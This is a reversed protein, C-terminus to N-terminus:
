SGALSPVPEVNALTGRSHDGFWLHAAAQARWPRWQEALEATNRPTMLEGTLNSLTRRMTLDDAPFADIEGMRMAVYDATGPEIGDIGNLSHVLDQLSMSRDLRVDGNDVASAFARLTVEAGETLGIGSLEARALTPASPFAHSLGLLALGPAPAGHREVLRRAITSAEAPTRQQGVIAYVGVEFPDWTGPVRRGPRAEVLSRLYPDTNLRNNATDLDVDLSFVRRAGQVIHLLDAWHPLHARLLLEGPGGRCVELVGVDGEVVITRRYIDREVSEVGWIAKARLYGLLEEWELAGTYSMRVVLGGDAVLHDSRRRRARLALPTDRFVELMTRNFQRLSGFGAAFAIETASLDTDDLLRRAFHARNSRALQDPTVGVHLEFLRRLHRSSTRLRTALHQENHHDLAGDNILQIGRCVVEPGALGVPGSYRYPRCRLCARYGAAEAAAALEFGVRNGPHPNAGCGPRCYIGTTVVGAYTSMSGTTSEIRSPSRALNPCTPSTM